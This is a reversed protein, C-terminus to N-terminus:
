WTYRLPRHRRLDARGLCVRRGVQRHVVVGFTRQEVVRECHHRMKRGDM